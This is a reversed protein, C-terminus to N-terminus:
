KGARQKAKFLIAEALDLARESFWGEHGKEIGYKSCYGGAIRSAADTLQLEHRGYFGNYAEIHSSEAEKYNVRKPGEANCDSNSCVLFHRTICNVSETNFNMDSNCYVCKASM